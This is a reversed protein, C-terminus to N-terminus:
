FQMGGSSTSSKGSDSPPPPIEGSTGSTGGTGSTGSDASNAVTIRAAFTLNSIHICAGNPVPVSALTVPDISVQELEVDSLTGEYPQGLSTAVANLTATGRRPYFFAAGSCDTDTPCGIAILVCHTCTRWSGNADAGLVAARGQLTSQSGVALVKVKTRAPRNPLSFGTFQVDPSAATDLSGPLSSAALNGLRECNASVPGTGIGDDATQTVQPRQAATDSLTPDGTPGDTTCAVLRLGGILTAAFALVRIPLARDM